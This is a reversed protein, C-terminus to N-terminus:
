RPSGFYMFYVKNDKLRMEMIRSRYGLRVSGPVSDDSIRKDPEGYARLVQQESSGMGIGEVTRCRCRRVFPSDPGKLDGCFITAVRGDGRSTVAFGPYQLVDRGMAFDPEGLVARTEEITQGFRLRGMGQGPYVTLENADGQDPNPGLGFLVPDIMAQFDFDRLVIDPGGSQGNPDIFEIAVERPLGTGADAWIDLQMTGKLDRISLDRKVRFGVARGGAMQRTGLPQQTGDALEWLVEVPRLLFNGEMERGFANPDDQFGAPTQVAGLDKGSRTVWRVQHRIADVVLALGSWQDEPLDWRILGPQLVMGQGMRKLEGDRNVWYSFAYGRKQLNDLVQGFATTGKGMGFWIGCIVALVAAAIAWRWPIWRPRASRTGAQELLRGVIRQRHDTPLTVQPETRSLLREINTELHDRDVM